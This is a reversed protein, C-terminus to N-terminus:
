RRALGKKAAARLVKGYVASLSRAARAAYIAMDGSDQEAYADEGNSADNLEDALAEADHTMFVLYRGGDWAAQILEDCDRCELASVQAETLRVRVVRTSDLFTM